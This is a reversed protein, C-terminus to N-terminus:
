TLVCARFHMTLRYPVLTCFSNESFVTRNITDTITYCLIM